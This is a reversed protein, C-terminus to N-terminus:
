ALAKNMKVHSMDCSFLQIELLLKLGPRIEKVVKCRRRRENYKSLNVMQGVLSITGSLDRFNTEYGNTYVVTEKRPVTFLQDWLITM